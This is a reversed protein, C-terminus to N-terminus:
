VVRKVGASILMNSTEYMPLGRVNSYSGVIRIIFSDLMGGGLGGARGIWCGSKIYDEVDINSMHKMKISTEVMRQAVKHESNIVCVSTLARVSRGSFFILNKRIEDETRCKQMIQSKSALITDGALIVEGFYKEHLFEAKDRAIRVVYKEPKEKKRPTEDIDAPVIEDPIFGSDKLLQLREPSGSGLIFKTM